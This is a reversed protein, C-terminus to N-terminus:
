GGVETLMERAEQNTPDLALVKKLVEAAKDYYKGKDTTYKLIYRGEEDTGWVEKEYMFYSEALALWLTNYTKLHSSVKVLYDNAKEFGGMVEMAKGKFYTSLVYIFRFYPDKLKTAAVAIAQSFNQIAADIDSAEQLPFTKNFSALYYNLGAKFYEIPQDGNIILSKLHADVAEDYYGNNSLVDGIRRYIIDEFGAFETFQVEMEKHYILEAIRYHFLATLTNGKLFAVDGLDVFGFGLERLSDVKRRLKYKKLIRKKEKREVRELFMTRLKHFSASSLLSTHPIEIGSEDTMIGPTSQTGPEDHAASTGGEEAMLFRDKIDHFLHSHKFIQVASFIHDTIDNEAKVLFESFRERDGIIQYARAKTLFIHEHETEKVLAFCQSSEKEKGLHLYNDGLLQWVDLHHIDTAIAQKLLKVSDVYHENQLMVLGYYYLTEFDRPNLRYARDFYFAAKTYDEFEIHCRGMFFLAERLDPNIRLCEEFSAVAGDYRQLYYLYRGNALHLDINGQGHKKLLKAILKGFKVNMGLNDYCNLVLRTVEFDKKDRKQFKKALKLALAYRYMSMLTKINFIVDDKSKKRMKMYHKKKFGAAKGLRFFKLDIYDGKFSEQIMDFFDTHKKEERYFIISLIIFIYAEVKLISSLLVVDHSSLFMLTFFDGFKVFFGLISDFILIFMILDGLSSVDSFENLYNMYGKIVNEDSKEKEIVDQFNGLVKFIKYQFMGKTLPLVVFGISIFVFITFFDLLIIEILESEIGFEALKEVLTDFTGGENYKGSFISVLSNLMLFPLLWLYFNLFKNAIVKPFPVKKGFITTRSTNQFVRHYKIFNYNGAYSGFLQFSFILLLGAFLAFPWTIPLKGDELIRSAYENAEISELIAPDLHHNFYYVFGGFIIGIVLGGKLHSYNTGHFLMLAPSILVIFGLFDWEGYGEGYAITLVTISLSKFLIIVLPLFTFMFAHKYHELGISRHQDKYLTFRVYRKNIRTFQPMIVDSFFWDVFKSRYALYYSVLLAILLIISNVTLSADLYQLYNELIV